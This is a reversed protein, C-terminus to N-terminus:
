ANDRNRRYGLLAAELRSKFLDILEGSSRQRTDSAHTLPLVQDVFTRVESLLCARAGRERFRCHRSFPWVLLERLADVQGQLDEIKEELSEAM